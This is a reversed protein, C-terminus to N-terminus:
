RLIPDGSRRAGPAQAAVALQPGTLDHTSPKRAILVKNTCTKRAANLCGYYGSGKGSVLAIAGSCSGCRLGGSLLHTPHSDVYSLRTGQFGKKGKKSPFVGDIERWRQDAAAREADTIIRMEAREQTVWEEKPREVKKIRGTMPDKLSTGDIFARYIRQVVRAEEPIM